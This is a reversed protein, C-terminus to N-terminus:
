PGEEPRLLRLRDIIAELEEASGFEIEIKGKNGRQVIKSKAGLCAAITKGHARCQAAPVIPPAHRKGTAKTRSRAAAAEAERVTLKKTVIEDYLAQRAAPDEMGLLVRAHGASIDGAALGQQMAAPLQLYRVTNAVLSRSKGVRRAVTDQTLGFEEMLRAYARAEEMPNLDQRQINEILALELRDSIAIDKVIVPVKELGALKAARLRREGAILEYREDETRRVVLPQLVGKEGISRALDKLEDDDFHNRPQYPNPNIFGIPCSFYDRQGNEPESGAALLDDEHESAPLLAKLGRGLAQNKSTSM